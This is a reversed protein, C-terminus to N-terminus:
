RAYIVSIPESFRAGTAGHMVSEILLSAGLQSAVDRRIHVLVIEPARLMEAVTVVRCHHHCRHITPLAGAATAVSPSGFFAYFASPGTSQIEIPRGKTKL